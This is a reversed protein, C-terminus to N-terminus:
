VAKRCTDNGNIILQFAMFINLKIEDIIAKARVSNKRIVSKGSIL